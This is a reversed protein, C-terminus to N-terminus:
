SKTIMAISLIEQTILIFMKILVLEDIEQVKKAKSEYSLNDLFGSSKLDNVAPRETCYIIFFLLNEIRALLFFSM